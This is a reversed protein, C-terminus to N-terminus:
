FRELTNLHIRRDSQDAEPYQSPRLGNLAEARVLVLFGYYLTGQATKVYMLGEYTSGEYYISLPGGFQAAAERLQTEYISCSCSSPMEFMPIFVKSPKVVAILSEGFESVLIAAEDPAKERLAVVDAPIAIEAFYPM